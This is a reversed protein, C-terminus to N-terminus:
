SRRGAALVGRYVAVTHAMSNTFNFHQEVHSRGAIALQQGLSPSQILQAIAQALSPVDGPPALLGTRGDLILQNTAGVDTAVVPAGGALAELVSCPMAETLSPNVFIDAEALLAPIDDRQGLLAVVDRLGLTGALTELEGRCPGDGALTLRLSHGQALLQACAHLLAQCNKEPSLRGVYLVHRARDHVRRPAFHWRDLDIGNPIVCLRRRSVGSAGLLEAMQPSPCIVADARRLLLKDLAYYYGERASTKNYGHATAVTRYPAASTFVRALANSKYDHTHVIDFHESRVLRTFAAAGSVDFASKERVVHVPMGAQAARALLSECPTSANVLYLAQAQVGMAPLVRASGFIISEPGGGNGSVCRVNLVRITTRGAGVPTDLRLTSSNM